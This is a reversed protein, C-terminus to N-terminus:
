CELIKILQLNILTHFKLALLGCLLFRIELTEPDGPDGPFVYKAIFYIYFNLFEM